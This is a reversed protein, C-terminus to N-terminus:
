VHKPGPILAAYGDDLVSMTKFSIVNNEDSFDTTLDDCIWEHGNYYANVSPMGGMSIVLICDGNACTGSYPISFYSGRSPARMIGSM